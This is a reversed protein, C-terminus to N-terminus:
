KKGQQSSQIKLLHFWINNVIDDVGGTRQVIDVPKQIGMLLPGIVEGSGMQQVLKYAINGSDLNPFIFINAGNKIRSLPFINKMIDSNVATDAQMEGDVIVRSDWKKLIELAQKM